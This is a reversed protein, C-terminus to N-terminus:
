GGVVPGRMIIGRSGDWDDPPGSARKEWKGAEKKEVLEAIEKRTMGAVNTLVYDTDMGVPKSLWKDRPPTKSMKVPNGELRIHGSVPDEFEAISYREVYNGDEIVDKCSKVGAAAFGYERGLEEIEKTTKTKAWAAIIKLIETANEDKLRTSHDKFRPDEALQPQGIAKCLGKFEDPAPAAIAVLWDRTLFTDAPCISPDRNGSRIDEKGTIDEYAFHKAGMRMGNEAQSLEIFQGKGTRDRYHLAAMVAVSGMLGGYFDMVWTNAKLPTREPFGMMWGHGSQAQALVDNSPRNEEAPVGWQGYGNHAIYILGPNIQSLVDYGCGWRYMTGPRLNDLLVDSKTVLRHLVKKGGDSDVNVGVSYKNRNTSLQVYTTGKHLEGLPTVGRSTDGTGPLEFKYVEAGLEALFAPLSPGFVLTAVEIVRIGKLSEPKSFVTKKYDKWTEEAM